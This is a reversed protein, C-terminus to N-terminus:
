WDDGTHNIHLITKTHSIQNFSIM